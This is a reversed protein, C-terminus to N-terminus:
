RLVEEFFALARADGSQGLWFMAQKRVAPNRNMRAVDILRPIGRDPPLQSLAFVARKKVHTDPDHEIAEAIAAVAREAAKQALWFLAEGRIEPAPDTRAIDILTDLATPERSQTLAFLVHRRFRMDGDTQALRRLSEFGARGRANGLWFAADKRLNLPQSPDTFSTLVGDVRTDDHLAIAAVSASVARADMADDSRAVLASLLGLSGELRAAPFWHLALGGLDLVCDESSARVRVIRGGEARYLVWLLRPGELRVLTSPRGSRGSRRDHTWCLQHDGQILPVGYGIWAPESQAQALDLVAQELNAAPPLMRLEGNVVEPQADAGSGAMLIMLLFCGLTRGPM